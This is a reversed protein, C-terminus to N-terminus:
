DLEAQQQWVKAATNFDEPSMHDRAIRVVAQPDHWPMAALSVTETGPAAHPQQAAKKSASRAPENGPERNSTSSGEIIVAHYNEDAAADPAGGPASAGEARPAARPAAREQAAAARADAEARQDEPSLKGLNRVHEVQRQGGALEAQLEPALKLLSLKSSISAQSIGLRKAAKSQGGYFTVLSELAHAQELDTMQDNHFNAVFAAELLSEDTAVREDAVRVEITKLGSRRAAELRRHGDVVIHTAGEDLEGAREPREKLYANISAVTIANIVGLEQVSQELGDIGRLEERPNDPNQSIKAIHLETPEPVGVTPAGTAAGIANRRASVPRAAGFSASSGLQDAKSM